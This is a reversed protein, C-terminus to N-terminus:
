WGTLTTRKWTNTGICVYLYDSDLALEGTAGTAASSGPPINSVLYSGTPGAPGTVGAPGTAGTAGNTGNSGTAGTSGPNAVINWRSLDDPPASGSNGDGIKIYSGGGYSVVDQGGVYTTPIPQWEGQWVFGSGNSGTAGTAGNSGTPGTAGTNGQQGTPGTPGVPGTEGIAGTPGTSGISGTPGAPGTSGISGTPGTPGAPGTSGISGTPGSIANIQVTVYNGNSTISTIGSGTFGIGSAGPSFVYGTSGLIYVDTSGMPGTVGSPGTPGAPGASGTPGTGGFYELSSWATQGDGIKALGTDLEYGFEGQLLIPNNTTWNASTDRRFQIRYAM